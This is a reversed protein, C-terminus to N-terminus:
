DRIVADAGGLPDRSLGGGGLPTRTPPVGTPSPTPTKGQKWGQPGLPNGFLTLAMLLKFLSDEENEAKGGLTLADGKMPTQAATLYSGQTLDPGHWTYGRDPM